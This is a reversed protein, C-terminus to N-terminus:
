LGPGHVGPGLQWLLLERPHPQLQSHLQSPPGPADLELQHALHLLQETQHAISAILALKDDPDSLSQGIKATDTPTRRELQLHDNGTWCYQRGDTSLRLSQEGVAATVTLHQLQSICQLFIGRRSGVADAFALLNYLGTADTSIDALADCEEYLSADLRSYVCNLWAVVTDRSVAHGDGVVISSIDWDTTDAPLGEACSCCSRVTLSDVALVHAIGDEDAALKIDLRGSSFHNLDSQRSRKRSSMAVLLQPSCTPHSPLPCYLVTALVVASKLHFSCHAVGSTLAELLRPPRGDM